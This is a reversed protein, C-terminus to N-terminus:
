NIADYLRLLNFCTIGAGTDIVIFEDGNKKAMPFSYDKESIMAMIRPEEEGDILVAATSNENARPEVYEDKMKWDDPDYVTTNVREPNIEESIERRRVRALTDGERFAIDYVQSFNIWFM